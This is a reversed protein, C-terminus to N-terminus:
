FAALGLGGGSIERYGGLVAQIVEHPAACVSRRTVDYHRSFSKFALM